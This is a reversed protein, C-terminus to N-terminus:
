VRERRALRRGRWGFLAVLLFAMVILGWESLSPVSAGTVLEFAGIDSVAGQPRTTGRQDTAPAAANDGADIAPSGALLEHTFTPGGNDQLPGLKPDQGTINGTTDGSITCGSTNQILNFGQSTFTGFCDPGTPATNGALITNTLVSSGANSSLGGGAGASATNSTITSNVLTLSGQNGIGGGSFTASGQTVSAGTNGSITSNTINLTGANFIAGGNKTVTNESITSNTITMTGNNFVGGGDSLSSVNDSIVTDDITM